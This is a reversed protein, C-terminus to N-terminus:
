EGENIAAAFLEKSLICYDAGKVGHWRLVAQEAEQQSVAKGTERDLEGAEDLVASVWEFTDPNIQTEFYTVPKLYGDALQSWWKVSAARADVFSDAKGLMSRLVKGTPSLLLSDWAFSEPDIRTEPSANHTKLKM